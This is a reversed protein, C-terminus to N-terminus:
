SFRQVPASGALSGLAEGEVRNRGLRKAQYLAADAREVLDIGQTEPGCVAHAVGISITVVPAVASAAHPIALRAVSAQMRHAVFFVGSPPTDPLSCVFEEGGYRAVLDAGRCRSETLAAAVRQLCADGAVHGYTDNYQKFFDIDIMIVGLQGGTRALRRCERELVDDFRSRNAVNTLGDTTALRALEDRTQKLAVQNRVRARVIAASFPKTLYDVAGLDLGRSEAADDDLGTLFVIPIGATAPLERLVRCVDYGDLWPMMVDLLILDPSETLALAVAQAGDIAFMVDYEAELLKALVEINTAQDDVVLVLARTRPPTV